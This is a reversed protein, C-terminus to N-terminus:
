VQEASRLSITIEFSMELIEPSFCPIVDFDNVNIVTTLIHPIAFVIDTAARQPLTDKRIKTFTEIVDNM